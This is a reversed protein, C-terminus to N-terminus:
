FIVVSILADGCHFDLSCGRNHSVTSSLSETYDGLIMMM